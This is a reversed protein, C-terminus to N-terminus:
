LRIRIIYRSISIDDETQNIREPWSPIGFHEGAAEASVPAFESPAAPLVDSRPVCTTPGCSVGSLIDTSSVRLSVWSGVPVGAAATSSCFSSFLVWAGVFVRAAAAATSSCFSSFLVWPGVFVGAASSSCVSLCALEGKSTAPFSFLAAWTSCSRQFWFVGGVGGWDGEGVEGGSTTFLLWGGVKYGSLWNPKYPVKWQLSSSGSVEATATGFAAATGLIEKGGGGSERVRGTATGGGWAVGKDSLAMSLRTLRQM